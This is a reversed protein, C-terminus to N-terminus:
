FNGKNDRMNCTVQAHHCQWRCPKSCSLFMEVAGEANLNVSWIPLDSEDCRTRCFTYCVRPEGLVWFFVSSKKPALQLINDNNNYKSHWEHLQALCHLYQLQLCKHNFTILTSQHLRTSCHSPFVWFSVWLLLSLFFDWLNYKLNLGVNNNKLCDLSTSKFHHLCLSWWADEELTVM